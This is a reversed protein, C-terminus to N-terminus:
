FKCNFPRKFFVGKYHDFVDSPANINMSISLLVVLTGSSRVAKERKVGARSKALYIEWM